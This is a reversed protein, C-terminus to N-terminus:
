ASHALRVQAPHGIGDRPGPGVHRPRMRWDILSDGFEAIIRVALWQIRLELKTAHEASDRLWELGALLVDRFGIVYQRAIM